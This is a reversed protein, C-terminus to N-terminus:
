LLLGRKVKWFDTEKKLNEYRPEVSPLDHNALNLLKIVQEASIQAEKVQWVLNVFPWPDDKIELFIRTFETCGLLKFYEQHLRLAEDAELGLTIAVQVPTKRQSYLEFARSLISQTQQIGAKNL